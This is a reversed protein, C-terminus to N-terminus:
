DDWFGTLPLELVPTRTGGLAYFEETLLRSTENSSLEPLLRDIGSGPASQSAHMLIGARKAELTLTADVRLAIDLPSVAFRGPELDGFGARNFREIMAPSPLPYYLRLPPEPLHGSMFYAALAARHVAVHDPHGYFGHPDFTMIADPRLAEIVRLMAASVEHPDADVLRRPFESPRHFGSDQFDLWLPAELGLAECAQEMELTRLESITNVGAAELLEPAASGAEGRTATLVFVRTGQAALMSLAGGACFSEDDPHAFIALLTKPATMTACQLSNSTPPELGPHQSATRELDLPSPHVTHRIFIRQPEISFHKM